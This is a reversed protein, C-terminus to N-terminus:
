ATPGYWYNPTGFIILDAEDIKPYIQQMGDNIVCVCDGKKCKRCDICPSIEYEYLYIKEYTHDGDKFGKLTEEILMDTNSGKRPSGVLALIRMILEKRSDSAWRWAFLACTGSQGKIVNESLSTVRHFFQGDKSLRQKVGDVVSSASREKKLNYDRCMDGRGDGRIMRTLYIAGGRPENLVGRKSKILEEKTIGYTKCVLHQIMEKDPAV